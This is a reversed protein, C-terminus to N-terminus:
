EWREAKESVEDIAAVLAAEMASSGGRCWCWGLGRLM